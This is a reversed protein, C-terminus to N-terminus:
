RRTMVTTGRLQPIRAISGCRHHPARALQRGGRPARNRSRVRSHITEGHTHSQRSPLRRSAPRTRSSDDHRGRVEARLSRVRVLTTAFLSAREAEEDTSEFVRGHARKFVAWARADAADAFLQQAVAPSSRSSIGSDSSSDGWSGGSGVASGDDGDLGTPVGGSSGSAAASEAVDDTDASSGASPYRSSSSTTTNRTARDDDDDTGGIVGSNGEAITLQNNNDDLDGDDSAPGMGGVRAAAPTTAGTTAVDGGTQGVPIISSSGVQQQQQQGDDNSGWSDTFPTYKNEDDQTDGDDSGPGM